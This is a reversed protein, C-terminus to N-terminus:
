KCKQLLVTLTISLVKAVFTLSKTMLLSTLSVTSQVAPGLYKLTSITYLTYRKLESHLVSLFVATVPQGMNWTRQPIIVHLELFESFTSSLNPYNNYNKPGTVHNIQPLETSYGCSTCHHVYSQILPHILYINNQTTWLFM